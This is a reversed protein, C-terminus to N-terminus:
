VGAGMARWKSRLGAVCAVTGFLGTWAQNTWAGQYLSWHITLPAYGLNSVADEYWGVWDKQLELESTPTTTSMSPGDAPKVEMQLSQRHQVELAKQRVILGNRREWLAVFELAVYAMWARCSWVSWRLEKAPSLPFVGKSSLFSLNELPYYIILALNQLSSLLSTTPHFLTPISPLMAIIGLLRMMTRADSVSGSLNTLDQAFRSLLRRGDKNRSRRALVLLLPVIIRAPYQILMLTKDLGSTTSLFTALNSPTLRPSTSPFLLHKILASSPKRSSAKHYADSM